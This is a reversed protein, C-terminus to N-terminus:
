RQPERWTSEWSWDSLAEQAQCSCYHFPLVSQWGRDLWAPTQCSVQQLKLKHRPKPFLNTCTTTDSSFTHHLIQPKGQTIMITCTFHPSLPVKHPHDQKSEKDGGRGKGEWERISFDTM